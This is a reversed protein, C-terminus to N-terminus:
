YTTVTTSIITVDELPRDKTAEDKSTPTAAIADVVDMGEVVQGFVTYNFDLSPAGGNNLYFDLIAEPFNGEAALYNGNVDRGLIKKPDGRATRFATATDRDLKNNQVIFFQSGNSNPDQTRAMALAGRINHLSPTVEIGFGKGWISQGGSGTGDPSGGQIMFGEIVRHFIVGDYYGDRCHQVFNQVANPAYDPFFRIKITGMTTEMVVIQEGSAPADLQPLPIDKKGSGSCATVAATLFLTGLLFASKLKKNM